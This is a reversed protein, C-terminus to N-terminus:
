PCVVRFVRIEELAEAKRADAPPDLTVEDFCEAGPADGDLVAPWEGHQDGVVLVLESGFRRALDVVADPPENPLALARAGTSEGLWIPFNTIIPGQEAIPLGAAALAEDIAEYRTALGQSQGGVFPMGTPAALFLLSAAITLASGLWAVPRTWGRMVGVREILADLGLLAAVILLVHAPGAAHLYTGWTTSVPFVLSTVLFTTVALVALPALSRLRVFWPLAVLGVFSTPFGPILLVTFLNHALGEVRMELLRAPGVALYRSLTPPDAYAFIDFGTVSLANALAQGPLPNGFELWDRAMWPAFVALAIVAPVAVLAAKRRGAIGPRLWVVVLWAFGVFAAENRTLAALGILVGLGLLRWDVLRVTDAARLLRPMLACAALALVAFPMTSDPLASHLVLPLYVAATLGAGLALVRVRGPPLGRDIAADAGIRWALVPVLSGVVISAWQASAFSSGLVAMPLAALFTPLPLWVEFAPRPFSLPPTQFSWIANSTLGQGDLLNRAVGVYYATDEPQPFVVLSAAVVRVVLAAAFVALASLVIERRSM